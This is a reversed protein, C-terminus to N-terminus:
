DVLNKIQRKLRMIEEERPHEMSKQTKEESVM